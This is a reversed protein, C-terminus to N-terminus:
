TTRRSFWPEWTRSKFKWGSATRIFIDRDMGVTAPLTGEGDPGESQFSILTSTGEVLDRTQYVFRLNTVVHHLGTPHADFDKGWQKLASSGRLYLPSVTLTGDSVFLEHVNSAQRHDIRWMMELVLQTLAIYDNPAVAGGGPLVENQAWVAGSYSAAATALGARLLARRTPLGSNALKDTGISASNTRM